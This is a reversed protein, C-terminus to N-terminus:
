LDFELDLTDDARGNDREPGASQTTAQQKLEPLVLGKLYSDGNRVSKVKGIEAIIQDQKYFLKGAEARNFTSQIWKEM